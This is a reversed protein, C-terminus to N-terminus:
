PGPAEEEGSVIHQVVAEMSTDEKRVDEIKKGRRLVVIRDATSFIDDMRHSVIIVSVGKSRLQPILELVKHTERVSINSTPEDLIVLKAEFFVARAIAISQQQGGSLVRTKETVSDVNIMLEKLFARSRERMTKRDLLWKVEYKGLIKKFLERGLFLNDAVDLDPVLAPDQIQFVMEVGAERADRPSRFVVPRGEVLMEGRTPRHVGSIIKMLTSKGAANDGVLGIVEGRAVQLSVGNIACLGGFYKYIDRLEILPAM